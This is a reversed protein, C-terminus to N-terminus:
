RIEINRSGALNVHLMEIVEPVVRWSESLIQSAQANIAAIREDESIMTTCHALIATMAIGIEHHSIFPKWDDISLRMGLYFGNAFDELLVEEDDTRMFVPAYRKPGGSLTAGIQSYRHFITNRVASQISGDPADAIERGVIPLLWQEPPIFQPSVVLAALYGDIMSVNAAQPDLNSLWDELKERTLIRATGPKASRKFRSSSM